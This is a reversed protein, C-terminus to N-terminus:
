PKFKSDERLFHFSFFCGGSISLSLSVVDSHDNNISVPPLKFFFFFGFSLFKSLNVEHTIFATSEM